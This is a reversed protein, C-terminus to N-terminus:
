ETDLKRIIEGPPSTWAFSDIDLMELDSAFIEAEESNRFPGILLRARDRGVAVYGSIDGLIERGRSRIRQYEEGFAAANQGSSLQLWQRRDSYVVGDPEHRNVVPRQIRASAVQRPQQAPRGQRLLEDISGLRDANVTPASAVSPLSPAASALQPGSPFIGLHVAAAKQDSRLAPLQRFFYDMRYSSGPMAAEIAARAGAPDGTLALVFARCRAAAADGRAMLPGLMSLAEPKRGSIALSLALRRRATDGDPGGLAARYDAQAQAHQGLLDYALGRDAGITQSFWYVRLPGGARDDSTRDFDTSYTNHIPVPTVGYATTYAAAIGPSGATLFSAHTLLSREVRAALANYRSGSPCEGPHFDELDLGYPVNLDAAAAAGAALAGTTGAYVFDAPEAVVAAVLEDHFRSYARIAAALPAREAGVGRVITSALRSRLGSSIHVRAATARACDIRTWSWGRQQKVQEDAAIAWPTHSVSVVRVRFGCAHLADAAKVM